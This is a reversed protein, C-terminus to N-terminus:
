KIFAKTMRKVILKDILKYIVNLIILDMNINRKKM